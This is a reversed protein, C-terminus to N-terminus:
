VGVEKAVRQLYPNLSRAFDLGNLDFGVIVKIEQAVSEAFTRAGTGNVPQAAPTTYDVDFAQTLNDSLKQTARIPKEASATIGIALGEDLYGGFAKFLKSPSAIGFMDKFKGSIKSGIDKVANIVSSLANKMGEKLGEMINKGIDGWEFSKFTNVISSIITPIYSVIQPIANALGVVLSVIIQVGTLIIKDLNNLMGNVLAIFLEPIVAVLEPVAGAIGNALAFIIDIGASIITGLNAQLAVILNAIILPIQEILQPVAEVVGNVLALLMSLGASLLASLNDPNTLVGVLQVIVSTLTETVSEINNAVGNVLEVLLTLGIEALQPLLSLISNFLTAAVTLLSSTLDPLTASLTLILDPLATSFEEILSLAGNSLAPLLTSITTSIHPVLNQALQSVGDVLRPLLKQIRPILNNGVTVVSDVLNGLLADFDQEPDALGTMFNEWASKMTNVSGQITSAAEQSTTGTIGLNTQVTHIAEIMKDFSVNNVTEATVKTTEGLVGSDNILRAMESATGGYGLKLNDLMTYNQKAFGQYANRIMEIDTGMKNANDSMDIVAKNAIEAAAATNGGLGQLLSASFSTVTNMYENASMGAAKYSSNAYEMVKESSNGFLTEVGGTLQEYEAYASVSAKGLAALGTMAAGTAAGVAGIVATAGKAVAKAGSGLASSLKGGLSKGDNEVKDVGKEYASSDLGIKAYLNYVDM